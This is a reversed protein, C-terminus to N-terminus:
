CGITARKINDYTRLFTYVPEQVSIICPLSYSLMLKGIPQEELFANSKEEM